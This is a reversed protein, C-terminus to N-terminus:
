HMSPEDAHLYMEEKLLEAAHCIEEEAQREQGHAKEEVERLLKEKSTSPEDETTKVTSSERGEETNM